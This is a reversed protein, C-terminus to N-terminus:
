IQKLKVESLDKEEDIDHLPQLLFFLLDATKCRNITAPFVNPTSWQIDKFLLDHCQKMGLLYYGGDLAPGIVIDFDDLKSFADQIISQNLSPCDTGIIIIRDYGKRFTDAFANMMREGLDNGHQLEKYYRKDDWIDDPDVYNDYFVYKDAPVLNTESVTHMLLQKYVRLAEADGITAALRTKVKGTEPNKTFILLAQKNM